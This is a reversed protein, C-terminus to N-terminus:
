KKELMEAIRDQLKDALAYHLLQEYVKQMDSSYFTHSTLPHGGKVENLFDTLAQQDNKLHDNAVLYKCTMWVLTVVSVVLIINVIM